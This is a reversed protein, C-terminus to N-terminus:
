TKFVNLKLLSAYTKHKCFLVTELLIKIKKWYKVVSVLRIFRMYRMLLQKMHSVFIFGFFIIKTRLVTAISPPLKTFNFTQRQPSTLSRARSREAQNLKLYQWTTRCMHSTVVISLTVVIRVLQNCSTFIYILQLRPLSVKVTAKILFCCLSSTSSARYM